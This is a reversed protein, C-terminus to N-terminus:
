IAQLGGHSRALPHHQRLDPQEGVTHGYRLDALVGKVDALGIDIFHDGDASVFDTCGDLIDVVIGARDGFRGACQAHGPDLLVDLEFANVALGQYGDVGTGVDVEVAQAMNGLTGLQTFAAFGDNGNGDGLLRAAELREALRNAFTLDGFEVVAVMGITLRVDENAHLGMRVGVRATRQDVAQGLLAERYEVQGVVFQGLQMDAVHDTAM